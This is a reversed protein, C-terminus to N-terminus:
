EEDDKKHKNQLEKIRDAVKRSSEPYPDFGCKTDEQWKVNYLKNDNIFQSIEQEVSELGPSTTVKSNIYNLEKVIDGMSCNDVQELITFGYQSAPSLMYYKRVLSRAKGLDMDLLRRFQQNKKLPANWPDNKYLKNRLGNIIYESNDVKAVEGGSPFSRQGWEKSKIRCYEIMLTSIHEDTVGHFTIAKGKSNSGFLGRMFEAFSFTELLGLLRKLWQSPISGSNVMRRKYLMLFGKIMKKEEDSLNEIPTYPSCVSTSILVHGKDDIRIDLRNIAM